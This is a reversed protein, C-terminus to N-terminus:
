AEYLPAMTLFVRMMKEWDRLVAPDRPSLKIFRSKKEDMKMAGTEPDTGTLVAEDHEASVLIGDLSVAYRFEDAHVTGDPLDKFVQRIGEMRTFTRRYVADIMVGEPLIEPKPVKEFVRVGLVRTIGSADTERRSYSWIRGEPSELVEGDRTVRNLVTRVDELDVRAPALKGKLAAAGAAVSGPEANLVIQGRAPLAPLALFLLKLMLPKMGM